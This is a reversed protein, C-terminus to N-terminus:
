ATPSTAEFEALADQFGAAGAHLQSGLEWTLSGSSSFGEWKVRYELTADGGRQALVKEVRHCFAKAKRAPPEAAPPAGSAGVPALPSFTAAARELVKAIPINSGAGSM